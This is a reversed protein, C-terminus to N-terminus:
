VLKGRQWWATHTQESFIAVATLKLAIVFINRQM